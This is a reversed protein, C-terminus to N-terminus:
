AFEYNCFRCMKAAAKVSEACRPCIKESGPAAQVPALAPETMTSQSQVQRRFALPDSISRFPEKTGGTGGVTIVGYGLIRGLIGQDVGIGEVQRLLLELSRRRILGVKIVVRKDTVAFESTKMKIWAYPFLVIGMFICIGGMVKHVGGQDPGDSGFAVLLFIGLVVFFTCPIYVAWHLHARYVVHENPLLNNDVYSM